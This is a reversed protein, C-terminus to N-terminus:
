ALILNCSTLVFCLVLFQGTRETTASNARRKFMMWGSDYDYFNDETTEEVSDEKQQYSWTSPNEYVQSESQIQATTTDIPTMVAQHYVEDRRPEFEAYEDGANLSDIPQEAKPQEEAKTEGLTHFEDVDQGEETYHVDGAAHVADEEEYVPEEAATMPPEETTSTTSTVPYQCFEGEYMGILCICKHRDINAVEFACVGGNMCTIKCDSQPNVFGWGDQAETIRLGCVILLFVLVINHCRDLLM